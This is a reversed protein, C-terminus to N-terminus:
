RGSTPAQDLVKIGPSFNNNTTGPSRIMPSGQNSANFNSVGSQDNGNIQSNILSKEEDATADYEGLFM